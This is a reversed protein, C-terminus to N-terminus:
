SNLHPVQCIGTIDWCDKHHLAHCVECEVVGGPDARSVPNLCYPCRHDEVVAFQVRPRRGRGRRPKPRIPLDDATLTRIGNRPRRRTHRLRVAPEVPAVASRPHVVHRMAHPTLALEPEPESAKPSRRSKRVRPAPVEVVAPSLDRLVPEVQWPALERVQTPRRNWASLALFVLYMGLGAQAVADWDWARPWFRLPGIGYKWHSAAGLVYLGFLLAALAALLRLSGGRKRLALRSTFAAAVAISSAALGNQLWYPYGPKERFLIVLGLALATVLLFILVIKRLLGSRESPSSSYFRTMVASPAAM